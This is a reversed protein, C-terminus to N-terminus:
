QVIGTGFVDAALVNCVPVTVKTYTTFVKQV